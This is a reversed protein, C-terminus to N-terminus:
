LSRVEGNKVQRLLTEFDSKPMDKISTQHQVNGEGLSGASSQANLQLKQIAEQEKQQGLSKYSVRLYADLLSLGRQEKLQWVENPIEEAKLGPFESFLEDAERRFISQEEAQQKMQRAYQIDPHQELFQNFTDPDIGADRYRQQEQEQEAQDLALLMEEHSQYGTLQAVRNLHNEYESARQSVKEYNLGKQIYDPAEDYPVQREEKNYKVTFYNQEQTTVPDQTQIQEQNAGEQSEVTHNGNLIEEM